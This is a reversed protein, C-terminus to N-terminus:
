MRDGFDGDLTNDRWVLGSRDGRYLTARPSTKRFLGNTVLLSGSLHDIVTVDDMQYTYNNFYSCGILRANETVDM